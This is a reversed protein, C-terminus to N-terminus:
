EGNVVYAALPEGYAAGADVPLTHQPLPTPPNPGYRM